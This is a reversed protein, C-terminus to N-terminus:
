GGVFDREAVAVRVGLQALRVACTHGAPGSGIIVAKYKQM